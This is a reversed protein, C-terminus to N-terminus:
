SNKRYWDATAQLGQQMTFPPIWNLERRIKTDDIRLSGLLRNLQATKGIVKGALQLMPVSFAFVRPAVNLASAMERLLTSTSVAVGDRVLYTQGAAAPHTACVSIADVLNGIYILDRQNNTSALPLPLRRDVARLMQAFNGKVGPGYVLPPRVIVVELGTEHAVRHLTQEAELKSIGYPDQPSPSDQETYQQGETTEEGNVKISSIYVLRKIGLLAASRALHETGAVNVRRYEALPDAAEDHMLHQRAALHIVVDVEALAASWDTQHNIQGVIVSHYQSCSADPARLAVKLCEGRAFLQKCLHAGIFGSAGTVLYKTTM